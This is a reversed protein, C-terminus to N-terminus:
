RVAAPRQTPNTDHSLKVALDVPDHRRKWLLNLRQVGREGSSSQV